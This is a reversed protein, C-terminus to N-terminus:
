FFSFMAISMKCSRQGSAMRELTGSGPVKAHM